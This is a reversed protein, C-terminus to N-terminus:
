TSFLHMQHSCSKEFFICILAPQALVKPKVMKIFVLSTSKLCFQKLFCRGLPAQFSSSGHFQKSFPSRSFSECCIMSNNIFSHQISGLVHHLFSEYLSATIQFEAWHKCAPDKDDLTVKTQFGLRCTERKLDHLGLERLDNPM